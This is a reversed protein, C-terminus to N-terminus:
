EVGIVLYSQGGSEYCEIQISGDKRTTLVKRENSSKSSRSHIKWGVTKARYKHAVCTDGQPGDSIITIYPRCYDFVEEYFGSERGHHSAVFVDTKRLLNKFSDKELLEKWAARENDGPICITSGAYTFFVVLSQNNLNYTGCNIPGYIDVELGGNNSPLNPNNYETIAGNFRTLLNLYKEIKPADSSRNGKTIDEKPIHRPATLTNIYFLDLNGIDDIHDTHPHTIILEDIQQVQYNKALHKLPSFTEYPLSTDGSVDGTGLDVVIHKGNPTKIYAASGHQVDWIKVQLKSM